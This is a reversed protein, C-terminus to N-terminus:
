PNALLFILVSGCEMLNLLVDTVIEQNICLLCNLPIKSQEKSLYVFSSKTLLTLANLTMVNTVLIYLFHYCYLSSM